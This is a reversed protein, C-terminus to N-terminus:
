STAKRPPLAAIYLPTLGKANAQNMAAGARMLAEAIAFRGKESAIYLPTLGDAESGVVIVGAKVLAEVVALHGEEAAIYLPTAGDAVAQDVAAGARVLAKVVWLHGDQAAIYLPAMGKCLLNASAGARMLALVMSVTNLNVAIGLASAGLEDKVGLYIYLIHTNATSLLGKITAANRARVCKILQVGVIVQGPFEMLPPLPARCVPCCHARSVFVSVLNEVCKVHFRHLCALPAATATPLM